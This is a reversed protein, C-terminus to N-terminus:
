LPKVKCFASTQYDASDQCAPSAPLLFKLGPTMDTVTVKCLLLCRAFPIFAIPRSTLLNGLHDWHVWYLWKPGEFCLVKELQPWDCLGLKPLNSASLFSEVEIAPKLPTPLPWSGLYPTLGEIPLFSEQHCGALFLSKLRCILSSFGAQLRLPQIHVQGWLKRFPLCGQQCSSEPWPFGLAPIGPLNVTQGTSSSSSVLTTRNKLTKVISICHVCIM